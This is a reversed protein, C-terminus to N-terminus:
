GVNRLIVDGGTKPSFLGRLFGAHLLYWAAAREDSDETGKLPNCPM